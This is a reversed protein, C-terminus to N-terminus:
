RLNSLQGGSRTHEWPYSYEAEMWSEAAHRRQKGRGTTRTRTGMVAPRATRHKSFSLGLESTGPGNKCIRTAVGLLGDALVTDQGWVALPGRVQALRVDLCPGPPETQLATSREALWWVIGGSILGPTEVFPPQATSLLGSPFMALRVRCLADTSGLAIKRGGTVMVM